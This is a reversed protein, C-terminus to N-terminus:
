ESWPSPSSVPTGDTNMRVLPQLKRQLQHSVGYADHFGSPVCSVTSSITASTTFCGAM